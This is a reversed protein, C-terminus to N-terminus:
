YDNDTCCKSPCSCSNECHLRPACSNGKRAAYRLHEILLDIAHQWDHAYPKGGMSGYECVSIVPCACDACEACGLASPFRPIYHLQNM